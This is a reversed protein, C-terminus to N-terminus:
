AGAVRGSMRSGQSTAAATGSFVNAAMGKPKCPAVRCLKLSFVLMRLPVQVVVLVLVVVLVFMLVAIM